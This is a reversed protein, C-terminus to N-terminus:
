HGGGDHSDGEAAQEPVSESPTPEPEGENPPMDDASEPSGAAEPSGAGGYEAVVLDIAKGIPIHVTGAGESVWGYGHLRESMERQMAELEAEPSAQLLPGTPLKQENAEVIPSAAPTNREMAAESRGHMYWTIAMGLACAVLIGLTIQVVGKVGVESDFTDGFRGDFDEPINKRWVDRDAM